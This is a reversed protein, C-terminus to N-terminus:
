GPTALSLAYASELLIAFIIFFAFLFRKAFAFASNSPLAPEEKWFRAFDSKKHVPNFAVPAVVM